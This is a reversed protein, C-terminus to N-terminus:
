LLTYGLSLTSYHTCLAHGTHTRAHTHTHTCTHGAEEGEREREPPKSHAEVNTMAIDGIRGGRLVVLGSSILVSACPRCQNSHRYSSRIMSDWRLIGRIM